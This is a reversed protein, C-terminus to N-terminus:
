ATRRRRRVMAGVFLTGMGVLSITAPEPTSTVPPSYTLGSVTWDSVEALQTAAGSGASFGLRVSSGLSTPDVVFTTPAYTVGRDTSYGITLNDAGDYSLAVNILFDDGSAITLGADTGSTASQSGVNGDQGILVDNWFSRFSVALSNGIGNGPTGGDGYGMDGGGVGLATAAGGQMVFAIGDGGTTFLPTTASTFAYHLTFDTSWATTPSFGFTGLTFASSASGYADDTLRLVGGTVLPTGGGGSGNLQVGYGGFTQAAATSGFVMLCAITARFRM